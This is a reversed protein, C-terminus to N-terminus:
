KLALSRALAGADEMICPCSLEQRQRAQRGGGERGLGSRFPQLPTRHPPLLFHSRDEFGLSRHLLSRTEELFGRNSSPSCILFGWNTICLLHPPPSGENGM